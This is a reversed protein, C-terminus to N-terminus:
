IFPSAMARVHIMKSLRMDQNLERAQPDGLGLYCLLTLYVMTWHKISCLDMSPMSYQVLTTKVGPGINTWHEPLNDNTWRQGMTPGINYVVNAWHHDKVTIFVLYANM